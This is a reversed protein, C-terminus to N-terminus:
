GALPNVGFSQEIYGALELAITKEVKSIKGDITIVIEILEWLNASSCNPDDALRNIAAEIEEGSPTQEKCWKKMDTLDEDVLTIRMDKQANRHM